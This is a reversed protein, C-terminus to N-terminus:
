RIARFSKELRSIAKEPSLWKCKEFQREFAEIRKLVTPAHTTITTHRYGEDRPTFSEVLFWDGVIILNEDLGRKDFAVRVPAGAKQMSQLFSQLVEKRAQIRQKTLKKLAPYLVLDCGFRKAHAELKRREKSLLERRDPSLLKPDRRRWIPDNPDRPIGFSGFAAVHRLRQRHNSKFAEVQKCHKIIEDTRANALDACKYVAAPDADKVLEKIRSRTVRRLLAQM